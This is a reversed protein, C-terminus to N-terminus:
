EEPKLLVTFGGQEFHHDSTLAETLGREGMVVFSICDTLSWEKDPRDAFLDLGSDFLTRSAPVIETDDRQRLMRIFAVVASRNPGVVMADAVEALVWDTTLIPEKLRASWERAAPHWQDRPNLLALLYSTDAFKM